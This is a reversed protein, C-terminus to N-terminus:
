LDSPPKLSRQSKELAIVVSSSGMAVSSSTHRLEPKQGRLEMEAQLAEYHALSGPLNGVPIKSLTSHRMFSDGRDRARAKGAPSRGGAMMRGPSMSPAAATDFSDNGVDEVDEDTDAAGGGGGGGGRPVQLLMVGAVDDGLEKPPFVGGCEVAFASVGYRRAFRLEHRAGAYGGQLAAAAAPAHNGNGNAAGGGGGRGGGGNGGGGEGGGGGSYKFDAAATASPAPVLAVAVACSRMILEGCAHWAERAPGGHEPMPESFM